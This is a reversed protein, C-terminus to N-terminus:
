KVAKRVMSKQRSVHFADANTKVMQAVSGTEGTAAQSQVQGQQAEAEL